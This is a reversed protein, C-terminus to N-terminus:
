HDTRDGTFHTRSQSAAARELAALIIRAVGGIEYRSHFLRTAAARVEAVRDPALSLWKRIMSASADERDTAVLGAGADAIERWINVRESILVPTGCALAEVVVIGFNETHSTLVFADAARLAAWKDNGGLMGTWIIREAIGEAAALVELSARWGASDPGAMVLLLSPDLDAVRAFARILVDCGKKPDIRSLFLLFRRDKLQPFRAWLGAAHAPSAPPPSETGYGVVEEDARYLWYSQRALLREEDTTFLVRAADRLVRYDAWPWYLWKKLHKLPYRRRFWPDLAGHTFAVYPRGLRRLVARTAFSHYQYVGNVVVIDFDIARCQLWTKYAPAYRYKGFRGPGVATVPCDLDGLWGAGPDDLTVIEVDHGLRMFARSLTRMSEPPGGDVPNLSALVLLIRM